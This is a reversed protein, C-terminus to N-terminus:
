VTLSYFYTDFKQFFENRNIKGTKQLAPRFEFGKLTGITPIAAPPGPPNEPNGPTLYLKRGPSKGKFEGGQGSRAPFVASM